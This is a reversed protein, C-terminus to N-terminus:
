NETKDPMRLDTYVAKMRDEPLYKPLDDQLWSDISSHQLLPFYVQGLTEDKRGYKIGAPLDPKEISLAYLAPAVAHAVSIHIELEVVADDVEYIDVTYAKEDDIQALLEEGTGDFTFSVLRIEMGFPSVDSFRLGYLSGFHTKIIDLSEKHLPIDIGDVNWIFTPKFALLPALDTFANRAKLIMAPEVSYVYAQLAVDAAASPDGRQLFAAIRPEDYEFKTRAILQYVEPLLQGRLTLLTALLGEAQRDQGWKLADLATQYNALANFSLKAWEPALPDELLTEMATNAREFDGMGVWARIYYKQLDPADPQVEGWTQARLLATEYSGKELDGDLREEVIGAFGQGIIALQAANAQFNWDPNEQILRTLKFLRQTNKRLDEETQAQELRRNLEVVSAPAFSVFPHNPKILELDVFDSFYEIALDVPPPIMEQLQKAMLDHAPVYTPDTALSSLLFEIGKDIQIRDFQERAQALYKEAAARRQEATGHTSLMEIQSEYEKLEAALKGETDIARAAELQTRAESANERELAEAIRSKITELNESSSEYEISEIRSRPINLVKGEFYIEVRTPYEEKVIGQIFKGNKYYIKDAAADAPALTMAALLAPAAWGLRRNGVTRLGMM